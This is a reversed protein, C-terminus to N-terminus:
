DIPYEWRIRSVSESKYCIMAEGGHEEDVYSDCSNSTGNNPSGITQMVTDRSSGVRIGKYDPWRANTIEVTGLRYNNRTAASFIVLADMGKAALTEVSQRESNFEGIDASKVALRETKCTRKPLDCQSLATKAGQNVFENAEPSLPQAISATVGTLALLFAIVFKM